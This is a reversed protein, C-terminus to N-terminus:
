TNTQEKLKNYCNRCVAKYSENGGIQISEGSFVPENDFLRMNMVAKKDCCTCVTKIEELKAGMEILRKSAPFLDAKFDTLLGYCIVPINHNDVLNVFMDIYEKTLFQVEDVFVVDPTYNLITELISDIYVKPVLYADVEDNLARSKVVGVDRTDLSPKVVFTRRGQHAYNYHNMILQASKSSNMVGYKFFLSAM